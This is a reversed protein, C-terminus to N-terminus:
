RTVQAVVEAAKAVHMPMFVCMASFTLVYYSAYCIAKQLLGDESSLKEVTVVGMKPRTELGPNVDVEDKGFELMFKGM